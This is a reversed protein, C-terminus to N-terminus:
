RRPLAQPSAEGAGGSLRRRMWLGVGLGAALVAVGILVPLWPFGSGGSDTAAATSGPKARIASESPPPVVTTTAAHHQRKHQHGSSSGSSGSSQTIGTGIGSGTGGSSGSSGSSSSSSGSSGSHSSSGSSGSSGSKGSHSGGSGGSATPLQYETGAPSGPTTHVANGPPEAALAPVPLCLVFAFVAGLTTARRM